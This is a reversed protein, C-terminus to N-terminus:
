KCVTLHMSGLVSGLDLVTLVVGPRDPDLEDPPQEPTEQVGSRAPTVGASQPAADATAAADADRVAAQATATPEAVALAAQHKAKIAAMRRRREEIARAQM